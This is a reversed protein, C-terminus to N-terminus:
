ASTLSGVNRWWTLWPGPVRRAIILLGGKSGRLFLLAPTLPVLLPRDQLLLLCASPRLDPLRLFPKVSAIHLDLSGDQVTVQFSAGGFGTPCVKSDVHLGM